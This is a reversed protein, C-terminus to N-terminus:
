LMKYSDKGDSPFTASNQMHVYLLKIQDTVSTFDYQSLEMIDGAVPIFGMNDAVTVKNGSLSLITTQFYRTTFDASRVKVACNPFRQWKLYESSGFTSFYAKEIIFQTGSIGTKIRSSPGVLGYRTNGQFGTQLLDLSVQGNKINMRKNVVEFLEPVRERNGDVSNLINLGDGDLIIIDGIEMNYGVKYNVNIGEFYEAGFQFRKIRRNSAIQALNQGLLAKRMGQSEVLLVRVGAPIRDLSTASFTVITVLFKRDNTDVAPVEYRYVIENFFNKNIGRQTVIKDPNTINSRDITISSASPLPGVFYGVSAQSKRPLSYAGAPKYIETEIFEKGNDITDKLYFDYNHNSLFLQQINLHQTVDVEDPTMMCGSPLTDYQSRFSVTAVSALEDVFTVGDIVVYSGFDTINVASIQAWASVNNSGNPSGFTEVYDGVKIGYERFVDLGVFVLSNEVLTTDPLRNFNTISVDEVFPGNWGSLMLKLALDVSNGQLRYFSTVAAEDDHSVAVTGLQGRVLGTLDFGSVGTYKIIEDDIQVYGTFSSDEMGNPGLISLLYDPAADLTITTQSNTISGDLAHDIKQFITQRKKQDPHAISLKVIGQDAKIGDIIGRFIIIYDEPFTNNDAFGLYVKVKRGLVDDVIYGPTILKTIDQNFDILGIEMSSVSSGRGKDIDLQQNISTTTGDLSISTLQNYDAVFGGIVWDDGIELGPDGIRVIRLISASGYITDVGDIKLVINPQKVVADAAAKARQTIQFSM